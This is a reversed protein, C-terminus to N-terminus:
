DLLAQLTERDLKNWLAEPDQWLGEALFKKTAQLALIREEVTGEAIIKYSTVKQTQGIRHARDTAQQMVMPNWWPDLHFVYSARTLNLGTGGAKLSILFLPEEGDQFRHVLDQRDKTQGDLYLYGWGREELEFKLLGLLQTFQSFVLASQGSALVEELHVMLIEFKASTQNVLADDVLGPHCCIQRLRLLQTLVGLTSGPKSIMEKAGMLMESYARRQVPSLPVRLVLEQKEPLESAVDKKLRRLMFPNVKRRFAEFSATGPGPLNHIEDLDGLYGPALFHFISWLESLRNEIPTGTLAIKHKAWLEFVAQSTQAEPNKIAQAEDLVVTQFEVDYLLESDRLVTGYTTLVLDLGAFADANKLRQNGHHLTLKRQPSFKACEEAWNALLSRPVVLMQPGNGKTADLTALTQITKGLGMDDALLAPEQMEMRNLLWTVGESQYGRLVKTWHDALTTQPIREEAAGRIRSLLAQQHELDSHISEIGSLIKSQTLIERTDVNLLRGDALCLVQGPIARHALEDHEFREGGILYHPALCDASWVVELPFATVGFWRDAQERELVLDPDIQFNELFSPAAQGRIKFRGNEWPAKVKEMAKSFRSFAGAPVQLLRGSQGSNLWQLSSKWDRLPFFTEGDWVGSEGLLGKGGAELRIGASALSTLRQPPDGLWKILHKENLLAAMVQPSVELCGKSGGDFMQFDPVYRWKELRDGRVIWGPRGPLYLAKEPLDPSSQWLLANGKLRVQVQPLDEAKVSWSYAKEQNASWLEIGNLESLVPALDVRNLHIAAGDEEAIDSMARLAKASLGILNPERQFYALPRNVWQGTSLSRLRLTAGSEDFDAELRFGIKPQNGLSMKPEAMTYTPVIGLHYLALITAHLCWTGKGHARCDVVARQGRVTLKVYSAPESSPPAPKVGAQLRGRADLEFHSISDLDMATRAEDILAKGAWAILLNEDFLMVKKVM